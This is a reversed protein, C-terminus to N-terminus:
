RKIPRTKDVLNDQNVKKIIKGNLDFTLWIGKKVGMTYQGKKRVEGNPYYYVIPGNLKDDKYIGKVNVKGDSYFEIWEGEKIGKNYTIIETPNGNEFYTYQKGHLLGDVYTEKGITDREDNAFFYWIGLKKKGLLEGKAHVLEDYDFMICVAKGGPTQYERISLLKGSQDYFKFTGVELDDKFEGTYRTTGWDYKKEWKGQKLGNEDVLNQACLSSFTLILFSVIYNKV